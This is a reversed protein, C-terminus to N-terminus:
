DAPDRGARRGVRREARERIGRLMRQSMLFSVMEVPEALMRAWGALYAYRERVILRTTGPVDDTLVFVWTFDYPAPANTGDAAVAGRLVLHHGEELTVVRLAVSPTLKVEDGVARIRLEPVIVDSSHIDCGALNELWDDGPLLMELEGDGAGWRLSARRVAWTAAMAAVAAGAVVVGRYGTNNM